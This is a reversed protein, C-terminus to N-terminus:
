VVGKDLELTEFLEVLFQRPLIKAEEVTAARVLNPSLLFNFKGGPGLDIPVIGAYGKRKIELM